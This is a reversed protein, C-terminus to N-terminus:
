AVNSTMDGLAALAVLRPGIRYRRDRDRVLAGWEVFEGLLRLTTTVPLGTRDSIESLTLVTHDPGFAGLISLARATVSQPTDPWRKMQPV